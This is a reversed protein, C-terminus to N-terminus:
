RRGGNLVRWGQRRVGAAASGPAAYAHMTTRPDAHGLTAAIAHGALGREATITALQGRMYHATVEPVGALRCIRRVNKLIWDRWHPKGDEAEFVYQDASKGEACALLHARLVHPVELTRRGAPTKADPIWLLDGAETDEDLDSVRMSTIESARMGLLLAVLAAVAAQDGRHARFLAMECWARTQKIRLENGRKGLSKGRPRRKGIGSIGAAPNKKLWGEEVCWNLFTKVQALVGRHSDVSLPQDNKMPRVRLDDYLKICREESLIALSVSSRFFCGIAWCTQRVSDQKNGKSKLHVRYANKAAETTHDEHSLEALLLEIYREAKAETEFIRPTRRDAADIEVVRWGAREAYPGLVREGGRRTM